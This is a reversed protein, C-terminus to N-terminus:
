LFRMTSRVREREGLGFNWELSDAHQVAQSGRKQICHVMKRTGAVGTMTMARQGLKGREAPVL